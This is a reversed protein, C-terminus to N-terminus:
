YNSNIITANGSNKHCSDFKQFNEKFFIWKPVIFVFKRDSSYDTFLVNSKIWPYFTPNGEVWWISANHSFWRTCINLHMWIHRHLGLLILHRLEALLLHEIWLGCQLGLLSMWCPIWSPPPLVCLYPDGGWFESFFPSTYICSDGQVHHCFLPLLHQLYLVFM